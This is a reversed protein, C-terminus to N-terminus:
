QEISFVRVLESKGKLTEDGLVTVHFETGLEDKRWATASCGAVSRRRIPRSGLPVTLPTDGICTYTARHHTGAYGAVMEGTAIGIGIRIAPQTSARRDANLM